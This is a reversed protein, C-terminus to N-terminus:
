GKEVRDGVRQFAATVDVEGPEALERSRVAGGTLAHVWARSLPHLDGRGGHRLERRAALQLRGDLPLRRPEAPGPPRAPAAKWKIGVRSPRATGCGERSTSASPLEPTGLSCCDISTPTPSSVCSLSRNIRM